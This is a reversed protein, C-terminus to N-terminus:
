PSPARVQKFFDGGSIEWDERWTYLDRSLGKDGFLVRATWMGFDIAEPLLTDLSQYQTWRNGFESEVLVTEARPKVVDTPWM